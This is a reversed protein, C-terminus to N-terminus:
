FSATKEENTGSDNRLRQADRPPLDIIRQEKEQVGDEIHSPTVASRTCCPHESPSWSVSALTAETLTKSLCRTAECWHKCISCNEPTGACPWHKLLCDDFLPRGEVSEFLQLLSIQEPARALLYRKRRGPVVRVLGAQVMQRLIPPLQREPIGEARAITGSYAPLQTLHRVMDMLAHLAYGARKSLRM